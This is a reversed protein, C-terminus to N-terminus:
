EGHVRDDTGDFDLILSSPPEDFSAIFQELILRRMEFFTKRAQAASHQAVVAELRCLTAASGMPELVGVASHLAADHRLQQHDNLDSFGAVIPFIRQRVLAEWQHTVASQKRPDHILKSAAKCLGIRDDAARLLEVGGIGAM